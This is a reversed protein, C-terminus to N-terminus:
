SCHSGDWEELQVETHSPNNFDVKLVVQAPLSWLFPLKISIKNKNEFDTM